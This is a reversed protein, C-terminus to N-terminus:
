LGGHGGWEEEDGAQHAVVTDPRWQQRQKGIFQLRVNGVV